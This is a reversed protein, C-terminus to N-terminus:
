TAVVTLHGARRARSIEHYSHWPPTSVPVMGLTSAGQETARTRLPPTLASLGKTALAMLELTSTTRTAFHTGAGANGGPVQAKRKPELELFPASASVARTAVVVLELSSM